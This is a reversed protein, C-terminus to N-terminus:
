VCVKEALFSRIRARLVEKHKTVQGQMRYLRCSTTLHFSAATEEKVTDIFVLSVFWRCLGRNSQLWTVTDEYM